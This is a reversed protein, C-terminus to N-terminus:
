SAHGVVREGHQFRGDAFLHFQADFERPVDLALFAGDGAGGFQFRQRQGNVEVIARDNAHAVVGPRLEGAHARQGQTLSAAYLTHCRGGDAGDQDPQLACRRWLSGRGGCFLRAHCPRATLVAGPPGTPWSTRRRPSPKSASLAIM